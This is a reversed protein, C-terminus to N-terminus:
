AERERIRRSVLKVQEITGRIEVANESFSTLSLGSGWIQLEFRNTLLRVCIDTCECIQKCNEVVASTNDNIRIYSQLYMLEKTLGFFSLVPIKRM